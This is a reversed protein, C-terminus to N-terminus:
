AYDTVLAPMCQLMTFVCIWWEWKQFTSQWQKVEPLFLGSMDQQAVIFLSATSINQGPNVSQQEVRILRVSFVSAFALLETLITSVLNQKELTFPVLNAGTM